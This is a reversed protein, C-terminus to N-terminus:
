ADVSEEARDEEVHHAYFVLRGSPDIAAGFEEEQGPIFWRVWWYWTRIEDGMLDNAVKLGYEKELFSKAASDTNFQVAHRYGSLDFGQREVAERALQIAQARSVEIQLAAEPHM